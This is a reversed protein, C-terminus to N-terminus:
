KGQLAKKVALKLAASHVEGALHVPSKETIPDWGAPNASCYFQTELGLRIIAESASMGELSQFTKWTAGCPAGRIVNIRTIKDGNLEVEYRPYGFRKGYEGCGAREPLACCIPPTIAWKNTVSKGSSVIPIQKEQCIQVLDQTLDPHKLYDLVIDVNDLGEPLYDGTEDIVEPLPEDISFTKIEFKDGGHEQIGQIKRTGSGNQQCVLIRTQEQDESM